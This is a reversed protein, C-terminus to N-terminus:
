LHPTLKGPYRKDWEPDKTSPFSIFLLPIDETGVTSPDMELYDKTIKDLDDGTFAWVNQAKLGLEEKTAKLGVYVSMAGYGHRVGKTKLLSSDTVISKHRLLNEFTNYVGAASIVIPAHIDVQDGGKEVQVGSFCLVATLEGTVHIVDNVAM